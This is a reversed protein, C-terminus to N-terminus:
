AFDDPFLALIDPDAMAHAHSFNFGDKNDFWSLVADRQLLTQKLSLLTHYSSYPWARFDQVFGHKQPNQHIYLVLRRFYADSTVEIRGFPRQFLAGTRRYTNNFTRAYANFLNSFQKSPDLPKFDVDIDVSQAHREEMQGGIAMSRGSLHAKEGTLDRDRSAWWAAQEAITRTRVLFHFHNKLLVYAYTDAVPVVYKTYLALFLQYNREERFLNERNNGRNYIHYYKGFDLAEPASM